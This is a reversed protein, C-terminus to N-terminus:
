LVTSLLEPWLYRLRCPFHLFVKNRQIVDGKTAWVLRFNDIKRKRARLTQIIPMHWWAQHLFFFNDKKFILVSDINNIYNFWTGLLTLLISTKTLTEIGACVDHGLLLNPLFPNIWSVIGYQKEDGFSTLVPVWAPWFAFSSASAM